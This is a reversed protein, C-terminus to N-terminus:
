INSLNLNDAKKLTQILKIVLDQDFKHALGKEKIGRRAFLQDQIAAKDLKSERKRKKTINREEREHGTGTIDKRTHYENEHQILLDLKPNITCMMRLTAMIATEKKQSIKRKVLQTTKTEFFDIIRLIKTYTSLENATLGIHGSGDVNEHHYKIAELVCKELGTNRLMCYSNMPHYAFIVNDSLNLLGNNNFYESIVRRPLKMIGCDHLMGILM